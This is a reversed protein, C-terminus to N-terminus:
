DKVLSLILGFYHANAWLNCMENDFTYTNAVSTVRIENIRQVQLHIILLRYISQGINLGHKFTFVKQDISIVTYYLLCSSEYGTKSLQSNGIPMSKTDCTSIMFSRNWLILINGDVSISIIYM